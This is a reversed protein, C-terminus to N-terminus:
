SGNESFPEPIDLEKMSEEIVVNESQLSLYHSAILAIILLTLSSGQFPLIEIAM